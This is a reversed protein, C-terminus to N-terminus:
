KTCEHIGIVHVNIHQILFGHTYISTYYIYICISTNTYFISVCVLGLHISQFNRLGDVLRAIARANLVSAGEKAMEPHSRLALDLDTFSAIDMPSVPQLPPILVVHNQSTATSLNPLTSTNTTSSSTLINTTRNPVLDFCKEEHELEEPDEEEEEDDTQDDEEDTLFSNHNM